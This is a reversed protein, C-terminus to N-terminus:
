VNSKRDIAETPSSAGDATTSFVLRGPMDNTGPTGDVEGRILAATVYAAGDYGQYAVQGLSDGSAVVTPATLSTNARKLIFDSRGAGRAIEATSAVVLQSSTFGTLGINVIGNADIVFPTADTSASDEVVFANGAGTQTVTLAASASNALLTTAGKIAHTDSAEADGLATNGLSTVGAVTPLTVTGTSSITNTAGNITISM